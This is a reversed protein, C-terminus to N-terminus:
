AKREKRIEFHVMGDPGIVAPPQRYMAVLTRRVREEMIARGEPPSVGHLMTLATCLVFAGRGADGGCEKYLREVLAAAERAAGELEADTPAGKM